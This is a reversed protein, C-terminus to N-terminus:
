LYAGPRGMFGDALTNITGSVALFLVLPDKKADATGYPHKGNKILPDFKHEGEFRGKYRGDVESTAEVIAPFEGQIRM